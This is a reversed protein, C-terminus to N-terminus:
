ILIAEVEDVDHHDVRRDHDSTRASRTKKQSCCNCCYCYCRDGEDAAIGTRDKWGVTKGQDDVEQARRVREWRRHLIREVLAGRLWAIRRRM